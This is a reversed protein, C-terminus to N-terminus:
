QVPLALWAHPAPDAAVAVAEDVIDDPRILAGEVQARTGVDRVHLSM